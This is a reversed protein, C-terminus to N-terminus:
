HNHMAFDDAHEPTFAAIEGNPRTFVSMYYSNQTDMDEFSFDTFFGILNGSESDFLARQRMNTTYLNTPAFYYNNRVIYDIAAQEIRAEANETLWVQDDVWTHTLPRPALGLLESFVYSEDESAAVPTYRLAALDAVNQPANYGQRQWYVCTWVSSPLDFADASPTARAPSSLYNSSAYAPTSEDARARRMQERYEWFPDQNDSAQFTLGPGGWVDEGMHGTAFIRGEEDFLIVISFETAYGSLVYVTGVSPVAIKYNVAYHRSSRLRDAFNDWDNSARQANEPLADLNVELEHGMYRLNMEEEFYKIATLDAQTPQVEHQACPPRQSAQTTSSWCLALGLSLLCAKERNSLM